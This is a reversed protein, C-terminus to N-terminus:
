TQQTQQKDRDKYLARRILTYVTPIAKRPDYSSDLSLGYAVMQGMGVLCYAVTDIDDIQFLQGMEMGIRLDEIVPGAMLRYIDRLQQALPPNGVTQGILVNFLDSKQLYLDTFESGKILLRKFFDKEEGLKTEIEELTEDVLKRIVELLLEEKNRFYIYFTGKAIGTAQVIDDITTGNFGKAEFIQSANRIIQERRSVERERAETEVVPEQGPALEVVGIIGAIDKVPMGYKSRLHEIMKLRELHQINYIEEKGNTEAPPLLRNKQYRAIKSILIEDGTEKEYARRLGEMGSFLRQDAKGNIFEAKANAAKKKAM